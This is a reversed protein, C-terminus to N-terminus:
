QVVNVQLNVMVAISWNDLLSGVKARGSIFHLGIKM